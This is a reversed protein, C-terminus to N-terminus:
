YKLLTHFASRVVIKDFVLVSLAFPRREGSRLEFVLDDGKGFSKDSTAYHRSIRYGNDRMGAPLPGRKIHGDHGDAGKGNRDIFRIRRRLHLHNEIIGIDLHRESLIIELAVFDFGDTILARIKAVHVDDSKTCNVRDDFVAARDGVGFEKFTFM